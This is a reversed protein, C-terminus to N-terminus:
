NSCMWSARNKKCHTTSLALYTKWIQFSASYRLPLFLQEVRVDGFRRVSLNWFVIAQSFAECVFTMDMKNVLSYFNLLKYHNTQWTNTLNLFIFTSKVSRGYVLEIWMVSCPSLHGGSLLTFISRDSFFACCYLNYIGEEDRVDVISDVNDLLIFEM